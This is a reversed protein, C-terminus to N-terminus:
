FNWRTPVKYLNNKKIRSLKKLRKFSVLKLLNFNASLYYNCYIFVIYNHYVIICLKYLRLFGLIENINKFSDIVQVESSKVINDDFLESNNANKSNNDRYVPGGMPLINDLLGNNLAQRVEGLTFSNPKSTIENLGDVDQLESQDYLSIYNKDKIEPDNNEKNENRGINNDINQLDSQTYLSIFNTDKFHFDDNENRSTDDNDEINDIKELDNIDNLNKANNLNNM